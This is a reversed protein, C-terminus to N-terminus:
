YASAKLTLTSSKRNEFCPISLVELTPSCAVLLKALDSLHSRAEITCFRISGPLDLLSQVLPGSGDLVLRGGFPLPQQPQPGKSGPPAVSLEQYNPGRTKILELDDLHPFRCLFEMVEHINKCQTQQLSLSRVTPVFQSFCRDFIPLVKHPVLWKIKLTHVTELARLQKLQLIDEPKGFCLNLDLERVYGYRLLGLKETASLYRAHGVGPEDLTPDRPVRPGPYESNRGLM